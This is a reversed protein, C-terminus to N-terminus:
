LSRVVTALAALDERSALGAHYFRVETAGAALAATAEGALDAARDTLGSVAQVTLARRGFGNPMRTLLDAPGNLSVGDALELVAPDHGPNAGCQRRDPHTQVLVPKDAASRAASMVERLFEGSREGRARHVASELEAPLEGDGDIASRVAARARIADIGAEDFAKECSPCFCVDLLGPGRVGTKDHASLHDFGFWGCAELEIADACDLSAIEAALTAAYKRLEPTACCLAWPYPDGFANRVVADPYTAGLSESHAVVAWATVTLGADRLAGAAREFSGPSVLAPRIVGDHWRRPDPNYYAGAPRTVIRHAPHFPTIARVDHYVAALSVEPVGLDAIRSATGPDGDVDWPYLYVATHTV